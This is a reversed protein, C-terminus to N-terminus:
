CQMYEGAHRKPDFLKLRDELSLQKPVAKLRVAGDVVSVHVQQGLELDAAKVIAAPLLIGLGKGWKKTRIIEETM